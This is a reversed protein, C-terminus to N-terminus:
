QPFQAEDSASLKVFTSTNQGSGELVVGSEVSLGLQWWTKGVQRCTKELGMRAAKVADEGALVDRARWWAAANADYDLHTSDVAMAALELVRNQRERM